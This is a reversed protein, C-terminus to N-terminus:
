GAYKDVLLLFASIIWRILQFFKGKGITYTNTLVTLKGEERYSRESFVTDKPIAAILNPTWNISSLPRSTLQKEIAEKWEFCSSIYPVRVVLWSFLVSLKLLYKYETCRHLIAKSDPRLEPDISWKLFPVWFQVNCKRFRHMNNKCSQGRKDPTFRFFKTKVTLLNENPSTFFLCLKLEVNEWSKGVHAHCIKDGKNFPIEYFLSTMLPVNRSLAGQFHYVFFFQTKAPSHFLESIDGKGELLDHNTNPITSM